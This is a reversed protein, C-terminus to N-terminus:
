LSALSSGNRDDHLLLHGVGGLLLLIAEQIQWYDARYGCCCDTDCSFLSPFSSFDGIRILRWPKSDKRM